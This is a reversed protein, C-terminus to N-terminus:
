PQSELRQAINRVQFSQTFVHRHYNCPLLDPADACGLEANGDGDLDYRRSSDDYGATPKPSRVLLSVRAAVVQAFEALTPTETYKAPTGNPTAHTDIGYSIRMAEVGEAVAVETMAAGLLEQRVLTPIPQNGDDTALCITPNKKEDEQTPRGCPRLYYAKAQYAYIPAEAGGLVTRRPPTGFGAYQSGKFLMGGNADAQVYLTNDDLNAPAVQVGTAGRVVLIASPRDAATSIFNSAKICPLAAQAEADTQGHFGSLPQAFNTAWGAGCTAPDNELADLVEPRAQIDSTTTAGYFGAMRLDSGISNLAYAGNEQMRAFDDSVKFVRTSNVLLSGMALLLIIGITMAVMVEVLTLGRQWANVAPGSFQRLIM